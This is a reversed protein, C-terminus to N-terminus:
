DQISTSSNENTHTASDATAEDNVRVIGPGATITVIVVVIIAGCLITLWRNQMEQRETRFALYKRHANM